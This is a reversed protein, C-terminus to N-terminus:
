PVRLLALIALTGLLGLAGPLCALLALGTSRYAFALVLLNLLLGVGSLLALQKPIQVVTDAALAGWRHRGDGAPARAAARGGGVASLARVLHGRHLRLQFLAAAAQGPNGSLHPGPRGVPRAPDEPAPRNWRAGSRTSAGQLVGAARGRTLAARAATVDLDALRARRTTQSQLSPLFSSSPSWTRSTAASSRRCLTRAVRNSLRLADEVTAGRAVVLSDTGQLGFRKRDEENEALTAPRQADLHRLEGDFQLRPISVAAVAIVAVVTGWALLPPPRVAGLALMWSPIASLHQLGWRAGVPVVLVLTAAFAVALGTEAFLALERLGPFKSLLMLAFAMLTTLFGLWLSRRSEELGKSLRQLPTGPKFRPRTSCTCRTTSRWVSDVSGFAFTLAHIRGHVLAVSWDM